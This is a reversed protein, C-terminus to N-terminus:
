CSTWTRKARTFTKEFRKIRSEPMNEETSKNGDDDSDNTGNIKRDVNAVQSCCCGFERECHIKNNEENQKLRRSFLMKYGINVLKM